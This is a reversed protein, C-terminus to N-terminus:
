VSLTRPPEESATVPAVLPPKIRASHTICRYENGTTSCSTGSSSNESPDTQEASIRNAFYYKEVEAKRMPFRRSLAGM